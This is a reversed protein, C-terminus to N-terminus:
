SLRLWYSFTRVFRAPRPTGRSHVVHREHRLRFVGDREDALSRRREAAACTLDFVTLENVAPPETVQVNRVM